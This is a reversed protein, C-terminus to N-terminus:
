TLALVGCHWVTSAPPSAYHHGTILCLLGCQKTPVFHVGPLPIQTSSNLQSCTCWHVVTVFSLRPAFVIERSSVRRDDPVSYTSTTLQSASSNLAGVPSYQIFYKVVTTYSCILVHVCGELTTPAPQVAWQRGFCTVRRMTQQLVCECVEVSM